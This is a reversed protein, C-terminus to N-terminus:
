GDRMMAALRVARTPPKITSDIIEDAATEYDGAHLATLMGDFRALGTGGTMYALEALAMRRPETLGSWTPEGVVREAAAAAVAMDHALLVDCTERTIRHGYCIHEVGGTDEYRETEFGEAERLTAALGPSTDTALANEPEGGGEPPMRLMLRSDAPAPTPRLPAPEARGTDAPTSADVGGRTDPTGAGSADAGITLTGGGVVYIHPTITIAPLPAAPADGLGGLPVPPFCGALAVLVPAAACAQLAVGVAAPIRHQSRLKM